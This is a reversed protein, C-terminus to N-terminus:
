ARLTERLGEALPALDLPAGTLERLLEDADLRQGESWLERLLGGTERRAFWDSGFQERLFARLQAELAWARLYSTVYFGDDVDSLYDDPSPEVHIAERLLEGYRAKAQEGDAGAHLELEYQLKACYRRVFFLVIASSEWAFREPRPVNLLRSLWAPNAVLHEFLFAWGETVANDGLRRYEFALEPSTHAFHETHGGEHFLARWDEPGGIPKIVLVVRQPVEIPSCFARPSKSPRPELDLEVNKQSRLDIGLDALTGELAPLMRDAPFAADWEPGRSLRPLDWRRAEALSLGLRERLLRDMSQAYLTETEELFGRCQGALEDLPFGFRRYLELYTPAGLDDVAALVHGRAEAHIPNLQGAVIENRARELRERRGRDASNAQEPRLMRFPIREGDVTVSLTAELQALREENARTISGLCGECAFRWLERRRKGGELSAGIAQAQAVSTLDEYREFIPELALEEKLGALHLYFEEDLEAIFRDARERYRDLERESLETVAM